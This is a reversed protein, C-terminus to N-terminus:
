ELFFNGNTYKGSLATLEGSLNHYSWMEALNIGSVGGASYLSTTPVSGTPAGLIMSLDKRFGGERVNTLLGRNQTTIDHFLLKLDPRAKEEISLESQKLSVIKRMDDSEQNLSALPKKAGTIDAMVKLGMNPAAQM